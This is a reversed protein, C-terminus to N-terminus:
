DKVVTRSVNSLKTVTPNLNIGTLKVPRRCRPHRRYITLPM